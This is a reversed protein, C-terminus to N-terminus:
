VFSILTLCIVLYIPSNVLAQANILQETQPRFQQIDTPNIGNQFGNHIATLLWWAFVVAVLLVMIALRLAFSYAFGLVVPLVGRRWHLLLQDANARSALWAFGFLLVFFMLEFLAIGLLGGVTKPLITHHSQRYVLGMVAPVLPFITLVGLHIWWRGRSVTKTEAGVESIIPPTGGQEMDM